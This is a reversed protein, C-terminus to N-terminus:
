GASLTRLREILAPVQRRADYRLECRERARAALEARHAPDGLLTRLAEGLARDDGAEFLAGARGDELMDPIGGIRSALVPTGCAMAELVAWPAADGFTPLCFLDAQQQLALLAPDGPALRHVRVGPGGPVEEPTVIDLEVSQGLESGLAALLQPGGKAAFRGGVFLVRLREREGRARPAYRRLDIGPHLEEVRAGPAAREASRRAWGTWAITLAARRLARRELM